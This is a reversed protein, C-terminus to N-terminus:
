LGRKKWWEDTLFEAPVKKKDEECPNELGYEQELIAFWQDTLDIPFQDGSFLCYDMIMIATSKPIKIGYERYKADYDLLSGDSLLEKYLDNCCHPGKNRYHKDKESEIIMDDYKLNNIHRIKWWEDTLFEKPIKKKDQNMPDTLGYEKKLTEAWHIRLSGPLRNGCCICYHMLIYRNTKFIKVGYERYKVNYHLVNTDSVLGRDLTLCCHPGKYDRRAQEVRKDIEDLWNQDDM